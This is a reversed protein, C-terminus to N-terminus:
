VGEVGSILMVVEGDGLLTREGSEFVFAEKGPTMYSM